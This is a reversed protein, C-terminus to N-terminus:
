RVLGQALSGSVLPLAGRCVTIGGAPAVTLLTDADATVRIHAIAGAFYFDPRGFRPSQEFAVSSDVDRRAFDRESGMTWLPDAAVLKIRGGAVTATVASSFEAGPNFSCTMTGRFVAEAAAARGSPAWPAVTALALFAVALPM